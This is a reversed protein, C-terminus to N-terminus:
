TTPAKRVEARAYVWVGVPVLGAFLFWQVAYALHPGAGIVPADILEPLADPPPSQETLEVYVPYLPVPMSESLQGVDVAAVATREGLRVPRATRVEESLRVRGTVDVPGQPATPVAPETTAGQGSVPIWGRDVLLARGTDTILPTLVHYGPRGDQLQGRLLVEHADDYRGEARVPQWELSDPVEGAATLLEDVPTPSATAAAQVVANREQRQDLRDLQWLGLGICGAALTLALGLAGLWRPRLLSVGAVSGAPM